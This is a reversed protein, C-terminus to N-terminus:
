QVEVLGKDLVVGSVTRQSESNKIKILDGLRGNQEAVATSTVLFNESKFQAQVLQGKEVLNEQRLFSLQIPEGQRVPHILIRGLLEEKKSVFGPSFTIDKKQWELDTLEVREGVGMNRLVVPVRQYLRFEGTMGYTKGDAFLSFRFTNKSELNFGGWKLRDVNQCEVKPIQLKIHEVTKEPVENQIQAAVWPLLVDASLQAQNLIDIEAPIRLEVNALCQSRVEKLLTVLKTRELTFITGPINDKMITQEPIALPSKLDLCEIEGDTAAVMVSQWSLRKGCLRSEREALSLIRIDKSWTSNLLFLLSWLVM